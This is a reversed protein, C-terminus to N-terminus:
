RHVDKLEAESTAKDLDFIKAGGVYNKTEYKTIKGIKRVIEAMREAQTIIVEAANHLPSDQELRRVLLESYGIISTLPQNLEHAAAGALEAVAAHKERERLEEQAKNLKAEMRLRERIDTFIGVSGVARDNEMILAASLKVAITEGSSNLMDVRYDELRGPGCIKPDRIKRMVERAVQPPYLKEVSMKGIVESPEYGFIRAAARNFLLVRGDLSASVIADVSSEIVREFFEKTQKLEIEAKREATVDRFTFLVAGEERLVSSFNVSLVIEQGQKRKIRVDVGQPYISERFGRVLRLAKKQEELPLVENINVEALDTESFGTIERARPNAFLIRGAQDMVVIGDAASEFFDRYRQFLQMRHEAEERAEVNEEKEKRLESFHKANRLAIATAHAVTQLLTMEDDAFAVRTRARLFIVGTARDEHVIPVLGISAFGGAGDIKRVARLLPHSAADRIVLTHGSTLTERIEPYKTLNIPLDRLEADDSTAVVYGVDPREGLLVISCRDVKAIAALRTVLTFLIDRIDLSSALTQILEVVTRLDRERNGLREIYDRMRLQARVRAVLEIGRLRKQVFDDAGAAFAREVEDDSDLATMVVVPLHALGQTNRIRRLVEYGDIGPMTLDLLVMSPLEGDLWAMAAEGNPVALASLGAEALLEVVLERSAADDEVVLIPESPAVPEL